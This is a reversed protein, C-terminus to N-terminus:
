FQGQQPAEPLTVGLWHAVGSQKRKTLGHRALDRGFRTTNGPPHGTTKCWSSWSGFLRKSSTSATPDSRITCEELWRGVTDAEAFYTDTAEEIVAASGLGHEYWAQAGDLAWRLIGDGEALLSARLTMDPRAPPHDFPVVRFRRRMASDASRLKPLDNGVILLKFQPAYEFFDRRMWRAAITDGGTILKVKAEAWPRGEETESATVLRAGALHALDTPHREGRAETFTDMAATRSYDGLVAALVEAFTSKGSGGPGHVFLLAHESIHGTLSYGVFTQLFEILEEDGGTAEKLFQDWAPCEATEAPVTSAQRLVRRGRDAGLLDGTRLDAAYGCPLGLVDPDADFHDDSRAYAPDHRLLQEVGTVFAASQATRAEGKAGGDTLLRAVRRIYDRLQGLRDHRWSLGSWYHWGRGPTYIFNDPYLGTLFQAVQDQTAPENLAELVSGSEPRELGPWEEPFPHPGDGGRPVVPGDDCGCRGLEPDPWIGCRGCKAEPLM